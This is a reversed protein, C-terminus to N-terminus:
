EINLDAIHLTKITRTAIISAIGVGSLLLMPLLFYTMWPVITFRIQTIGMSQMAIGLLYEGGINALLTGAIIGCISILMMVLMYQFQIQEKTFGICLLITSENEDRKLLMKLFLSIQFITIVLALMIAIRVIQTIQQLLASMTQTVYGEMDTTKVNQFQQQYENMKEVPDVGEKFNINIVNRIPIRDKLECATKASKGGNTIDQYIGSVTFLQSNGNIRVEITDDLTADQQHAAAYSLAIEHKQSPAQGHLYALPFKSFDGTEIQLDEWEGDKNKQDVLYTQYSEYMEIDEDLALQDEIDHENNGADYNIDMRIDSDGIGMYRVFSKSSMTSQLNKPVIMLFSSLMVVFFVSLYIRKRSWLDQISLYLAVPMKKHKSLSIASLKEKKNLMITSHLAQLPTIRHMKKLIRNCFGLILLATLIVAVFPIVYSVANSASVGMYLQINEFLMSQMLFSCLFGCLCALMTLVIYKGLYQYQIDKKSIGIAKMVGIEKVDEELTMLITFRLCLFSIGMLLLAIILLIVAIMGDMLANLLYLLGKTITTGNHPLDSNQYSQELLSADKSLFEILYEKSAIKEFLQHDEESILVRKSSIISANMQVDKLFAVIEFSKWEGGMNVHLQDHLQLGDRQQYYVPVAVQGQKLQIIEEHEDILFDFDPNQTVFAIDIVSQEEADKNEHFRIDQGPVNLLTVTQQKSIIDRHLATFADIETQDFNGAHMQVFDPVAAAEFFGDISSTLKVFISASSATLLSSLLIFLFLSITIIKNRHLDKKLISTIM